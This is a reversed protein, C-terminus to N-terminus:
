AHFVNQLVTALIIGGAETTQRPRATSAKPHCQNGKLDVSKQRASTQQYVIHDM